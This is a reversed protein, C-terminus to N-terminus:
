SSTTRWMAPRSAHPIAAPTASPVAAQPPPPPPPPPPAGGGGGGGAKATSEGFPVSVKPAPNGIVTRQVGVVPGTSTSIEVSRPVVQDISAGETGPVPVPVPEQVSAAGFTEVNWARTRTLAASPSTAAYM